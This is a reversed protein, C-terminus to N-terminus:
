KSEKGDRTRPVVVVPCSARRIVGDSVSGVVLEFLNGHGHSGMVIYDAKLRASEDVIKEVTPGQILLCEVESTQGRLRDRLAHLTQANGHISRAVADRVSQPGAQYGVFDPQPAEVHLLILKAHLRKALEVACATVAQEAPSFDVPVLITPM